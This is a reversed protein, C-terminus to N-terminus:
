TSLLRTPDEVYKRVLDLAASCYFGDHIREDFTYRLTVTDRVEPRHGDVVLVRKDIKGLAAFLSVTGYEYLHHWVRDIGVSGLNAVFLSAFMPDNRTFASPLLNRRDLWKALWVLFGLVVGPLKVLLRVEKDVARERDGRGESVSEHIRRVTADLTESAPMPLKITVLPADDAFQRKAAFSLFVGRRQYLHGGSAFRNIGPREHLARGLAAAVLHFLTLREKREANWREIFPLTQSLDLLQEQFVVSESRTPMLQPVMRRVPSLNKILDGDSRRFLPM